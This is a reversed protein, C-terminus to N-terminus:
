GDGLHVCTPLTRRARPRNACPLAAHPLCHPLCRGCDPTVFSRDAEVRLDEPSLQDFASIRNAHASIARYGPPQERRIQGPECSGALEISALSAPASAGAENIDLSIRRCGEHPLVQVEPELQTAGKVDM